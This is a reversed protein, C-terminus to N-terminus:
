LDQWVAKATAAYMIGGLSKSVSNMLWSQVIADVRDWHKWLNESYKEKDCSGDVMGLKNRGLPAIRMSQFWIAYNEM